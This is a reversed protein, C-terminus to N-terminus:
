ASILTGDVYHTEYYSGEIAHWTITGYGDITSWNNSAKYDSSTGDGLHDYLSKPIYIDGGAGGSAFKTGAFNAINNCTQLTTNRLVLLGFNTCGEVFGGAGFNAGWDAATLSTCSKLMQYKAGCGTHPSVFTLLSTNGQLGSQSYTVKALTFFSTMSTNQFCNGNMTCTDGIVVRGINQMNYFAGSRISSATIVIDRSTGTGSAWEDIPIGGGGGGSGEYTGTTGFITVDKKINGAVLNADSLTKTANEAYLGAPATVTLNSATLDSSSRATGTPVSVNANAYDTVDHTGNTSINITGTPATGTQISEIADAMEAPTYTDESAKKERIADAIDSLYGETILVKAM